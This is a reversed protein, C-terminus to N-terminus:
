EKIEQEVKKILADIKKLYDYITNVSELNFDFEDRYRNLSRTIGKLIRIDKSVLFNDYLEIKESVYATYDDINSIEKKTKLWDIFNNHILKLKEVEVM